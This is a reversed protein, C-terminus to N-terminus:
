IEKKPNYGYWVSYELDRDTFDIGIYNGKTDELVTTEREKPPQPVELVIGNVVINTTTRKM